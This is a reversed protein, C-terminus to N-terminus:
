KVVGATIGRRGNSVLVTPVTGSNITLTAYYINEPTLLATSACPTSNSITLATTATSDWSKGDHSVYFTVTANYTGSDPGEAFLVVRGSSAFTQVTTTDPRRPMSVAATKGTWIIMPDAFISAAAILALAGLIKRM